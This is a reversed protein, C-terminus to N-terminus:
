ASVEVEWCKWGIAKLLSLHQQTSSWHTVQSSSANQIACCGAPSSRRQLILVWSRRGTSSCPGSSPSFGSSVSRVLVAKAVALLVMWTSSTHAGLGGAWEGRLALVRAGDSVLM